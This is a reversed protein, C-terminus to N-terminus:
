FLKPPTYPTPDGEEGQKQSPNPTGKLGKEVAKTEADKRQADIMEAFSTANAICEEETDGLLRPVFKEITEETLGKSVLVGKIKTEKYLRDYKAQTEQAQKLVKDQEEQQKLLDANRKEEDTMKSSKFEKYEKEIKGKEDREKALEQELREKVSNVDKGHAEMISDVQEKTLGLDELDKRKM